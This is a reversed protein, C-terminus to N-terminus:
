DRYSKNRVREVTDPDNRAADVQRIDDIVGEAQDARQKETEVKSKYKDGRWKLAFIGAISALFAGIKILLANM